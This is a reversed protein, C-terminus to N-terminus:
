QPAKYTDKMPCKWPAACYTGNEGWRYHIKCLKENSGKATAHRPGKHGETSTNSTSASQSTTSNSSNSTGGRGGRGSGGGRNGRGRGGGRQPKIAAVESTSSNGVAAVSASSGRIPQSSQNSDFVQDSKKFVEKHTEKTFKMEAIHNRVVVPLAERYMGWVIKACCPCKVSCECLDNIIAKGLQSPKGTMVRNKARNYSDEPKPGFLDLLETKIRKYIDDGATAKPLLLLTKVEQKIEAPLFRQLAIRKTWQAKVDIVELQTEFETFWFAIDDKTFECRISGLKDMVKDGDTGNELDFDEVQAMTGAGAPQIQNDVTEDALLQDIESEAVSVDEGQLIEPDIELLDKLAQEAEDQAAQAAQLQKRHKERQEARQLREEQLKNRKATRPSVQPESTSSSPKSYGRIWSM